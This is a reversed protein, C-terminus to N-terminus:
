DHRASLQRATGAIATAAKEIEDRTTWRGITLRLASSARDADHGMALLVPAPEASGAHCASGTAAAVAHTASLLEGSNVGTISVNLTGPLRLQPHGNLTVLGPLLEDLRRHLLDRLGRLREPGGSALEAAALRTAEGLAVALAVNETGARLGREQGGGYVLPELPVGARACLVGIGKPAYMKHGVVTLLDVGLDGVDIGIKGVAQAADIHFLVGHERTIAALEQVPQLVGTESASPPPWTKAAPRDHRSATFRRPRAQGEHDRDATM